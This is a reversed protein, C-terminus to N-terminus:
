LWGGAALHIGLTMESWIFTLSLKKNMLIDNNFRFKYKNKNM